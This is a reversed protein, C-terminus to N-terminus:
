KFEVKTNLYLDIDNKIRQKRRRWARRKMNKKVKVTPIQAVPFVIACTAVATLGLFKRRTV